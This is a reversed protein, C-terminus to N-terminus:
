SFYIVHNYSIEFITYTYKFNSVYIIYFFDNPIFFNM